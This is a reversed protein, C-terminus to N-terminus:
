RPVNGSEVGHFAADPHVHMRGDRNGELWCDRVLWGRATADVHVGFQNGAAIVRRAVGGEGALLVGSRMALRGNKEHKGGEFTSRKGGWQIAGYAANGWTNFDLTRCDDAGAGFYVGHLKNFWTPDSTWGNEHASGGVLEVHHAGTVLVGQAPAHHIECDTLRVHHACETTTNTIKVGDVLVASADIEIGVLELNANREHALRVGFDGGTPRLIVRDRPQGTRQYAEIKTRTGLTLGGQIRHTYSDLGGYVGAHLVYRDGAVGIDLQAYFDAQGSVHRTAM